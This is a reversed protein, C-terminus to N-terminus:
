MDFFKESAENGVSAPDDIEQLDTLQGRSPDSRRHPLELLQAAQQIGAIGGEPRSGSNEL